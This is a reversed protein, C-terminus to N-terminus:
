RYQRLFASKYQMFKGDLISLRIEKVLNIIFYLNHISGLTAAFIEKSRYLHAVYATTFNKCTYCKCFQDIAGTKGRYKKNLINIKGSPTYLTAHRAMRTPAVCDFLDAGNEIAGFLDRPEGIGLLHRPKEDPLITNVWEVASYMDKESFSGGIGFGDFDLASITRASQKRLGEFPGGQVIGFLAQDSKKKKHHSLSRKAWKHTRDLAEIQYDRPATPSTCEDLVFIIDAGIDHEIDIVKEPTFFHRSGDLYSRFEVGKEVVKALSGQKNERSTQSLQTESNKKNRSIKSINQDFAAGLSFAQFGGSDTMTPGRWNMFKALGGCKKITKHGPELYLHYTNSLVVQTGLDKVQEM